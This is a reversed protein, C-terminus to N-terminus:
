CIFSSPMGRVLCPQHGIISPSGQLLGRCGLLLKGRVSLVYGRVHPSQKCRAPSGKYFTFGMCIGGWIYVPGRSDFSLLSVTYTITHIRTCNRIWVVLSIIKECNCSNELIVLLTFGLQELWWVIVWKDYSQSFWSRARTLKCQLAFFIFSLNAEEWDIVIFYNEWDYSM